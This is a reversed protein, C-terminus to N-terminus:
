PPRVGRTGGGATTSSRKGNRRGVRVRPAAELAEVRAALEALRELEGALETRAENRVLSALANRAASDVARLTHRVGFDHL